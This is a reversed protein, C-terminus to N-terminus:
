KGSYYKELCLSLNCNGVHFRSRLACSHLVSFKRGYSNLLLRAFLTCGLGPVARVNTSLRSQDSFGTLIPAFDYKQSLTVLSQRHVHLVHRFLGQSDQFGAPLRLTGPLSRSQYKFDCWGSLPKGCVSPTFNLKRSYTTYHCQDIYFCIGYNTHKWLCGKRKTTWKLITDANSCM